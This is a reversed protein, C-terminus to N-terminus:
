FGKEHCEDENSTLAGIVLKEKLVSFLVPTGTSSKGSSLSISINIGCCATMEFTALYEVKTCVLYIRLLRSINAM